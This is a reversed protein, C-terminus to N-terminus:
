DADESSTARLPNAFFIDTMIFKMIIVLRHFLMWISSPQRKPQLAMYKQYFNVLKESTRAAELM